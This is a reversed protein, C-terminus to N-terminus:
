RQQHTVNLVDEILKRHTPLDESAVGPTVSLLALGAFYRVRMDQFTNITSQYPFSLSIAPLNSM